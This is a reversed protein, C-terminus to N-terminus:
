EERSVACKKHARLEHKISTETRRPKECLENHKLMDILM